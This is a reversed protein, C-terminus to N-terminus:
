LHILFFNSWVGLHSDFGKLCTGYISPLFYSRDLDFLLVLKGPQFYSCTHEPLLAKLTFAMLASWFEKRSSDLFRGVLHRQFTGSCAWNLRVTESVASYLKQLVPGDPIRGTKGIALGGRGVLTCIVM